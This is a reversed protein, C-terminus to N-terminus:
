TDPANSGGLNSDLEICHRRIRTALGGIKGFELACEADPYETGDDGAPYAMTALRLIANALNFTERPTM